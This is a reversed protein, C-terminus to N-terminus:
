FFVMSMGFSIHNLYHMAIKKQMPIAAKNLGYEILPTAMMMPVGIIQNIQFANQLHVSM